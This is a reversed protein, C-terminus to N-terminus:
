APMWARPTCDAYPLMLPHAPTGDVNLRLAHVPAGLLDLVRSVRSASRPGIGGWACVVIGGQTRVSAATAAITPDNHPGVPDKCDNLETPDTARWGYLNVVEIAAYELRRAFGICKRITADDEEADATSPNLMVFCMAGGDAWRRWLRYRYGRCPSFTAGTDGAFLLQRM